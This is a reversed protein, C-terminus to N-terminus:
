RRVSSADNPWGSSGCRKTPATTWNRASWNRRRTRRPVLPGNRGILGDITDVISGKKKDSGPPRCGLQDGNGNRAPPTADEAGGRPRGVRGVPQPVQRDAIPGPRRRGVAREDERAAAMATGHLIVLLTLRGTGNWTSEPQARQLFTRGLGYIANAEISTWTGHEHHDVTM